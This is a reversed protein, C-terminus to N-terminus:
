DALGVHQASPRRRSLYQSPTLGSFERFDRIFHSQDYWGHREVVEAWDVCASHCIQSLLSQFRAVRLYLKPTFGVEREFLTILRKRSVDAERAVAGVSSACPEHSFRALSLAVAPHHELSRHARALLAEALVDFKDSPASAQVLRQHLRGADSGWIEDLEVHRDKFEHTPPGFFPWAGGPSFQVGVMKPQCADIAFRRTHPGCVAAGRVRHQKLCDDGDYWNLEDRSLNVLLSVTRSPMIADLGPSSVDDEWYWLYDIFGNLPQPPARQHFIM